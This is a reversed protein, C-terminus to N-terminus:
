INGFFIDIDMIRFSQPAVDTKAFGDLFRKLFDNFPPKDIDESFFMRLRSLESKPVVTGGIAKISIGSPPQIVNHHCRFNGIFTNVAPNVSFGASPVLGTIM